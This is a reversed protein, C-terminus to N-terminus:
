DNRRKRFRSFISCIIGNNNEERTTYLYYLLLMIYYDIMFILSTVVNDDINNVGLNKTILSITQFLLIFIVGMIVRKWKKIDIILPIGVMVLVDIFSIFIQIHLYKDILCRIIHTILLLCFIIITLKDKKYQKKIMSMICLSNAILSTIGTIIYYQISELKFWNCFAIFKENSCAIEFWNGGLLKVVFCCLLVVWCATILTKYKDKM